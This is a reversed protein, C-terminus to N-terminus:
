KSFNERKKLERLKLMNVNQNQRARSLPIISLEERGPERRREWWEREREKMEKVQTDGVGLVRVKPSSENPVWPGLTQNAQGSGLGAQASLLTCRLGDQFGKWWHMSPFNFSLTPLNITNPPNATGRM